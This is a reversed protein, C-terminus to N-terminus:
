NSAKKYQDASFVADLKERLIAIQHEFLWTRCSKNHITDHITHSSHVISTHM